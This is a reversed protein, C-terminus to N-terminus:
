ENATVLSLIREIMYGKIVEVGEAHEVDDQTLIVDAEEPSDVVETAMMRFIDALNLWESLGLYSMVETVKGTGAVHRDSKRGLNLWVFENTKLDIAFLYAQTSKATITFSSVVNKANFVSGKKQNKVLMYGARCVVEDFTNLSYVNNCFVVYRANPNHQKFTSYTIDFYESGGNYGSTQDGSYVIGNQPDERRMTRWSFEHTSGDDNISFCSLDIDNVLEWYTFARLVKGRPLPLRSGKPLTGFGGNATSEQLPFAIGHISPHIYVKGLKGKLKEQLMTQLLNTVIKRQKPTLLSKRRKLEKFTEQHMSQLNFRAFKFTRPTNVPNQKYNLLLQMIVIVNDTDAYALIRAFEDESHLRSLMYDLHRLVLAGGKKDHLLQAAQIVKGDAMLKEFQSSLSGNAHNRMLDVFYKSRETKPKYHIHHLIAQWKAQREFCQEYDIYAETLADITATLIKRYQNPLNLRADADTYVDYMMAQVLDPVDSLKFLKAYGANKATMMLNFATQKCNCATPTFDFYTCYALLARMKDEALPRTQALMGEIMEKLYAQAQEWPMCTFQKIEGKEKSVTQKFKGMLPEWVSHGAQSFDGCEYTVYYHLLQDLLKQESSLELVSRPYNRYFPEPVNRGLKRSALPILAPCLWQTGQTVEIAFLGMLSLYANGSEKKDPEKDNFNVLVHQDFLLDVLIALEFPHADNAPIVGKETAENVWETYYSKFLANEASFYSM